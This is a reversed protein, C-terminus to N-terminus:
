FRIQLSRAPVLPTKSVKITDAARQSSPSADEYYSSKPDRFKPKLKPGRKRGVGPKRPSSDNLAGDNAQPNYEDEVTERPLPIRFDTGFAKDAMRFLNYDVEKTKRKPRRRRVAPVDSDDVEPEMQPPPSSSLAIPSDSFIVARKVPPIPSAPATLNAPADEHVMTETSDVSVRHPRRHAFPLIENCDTDDGEEWDCLPTVSLPLKEKQKATLPEAQKQESFGDAPAAGAVSREKGSSRNALPSRPSNACLTHTTQTAFGNAVHRLATTPPTPLSRLKDIRRRSRKTVRCSELANIGSRLAKIRESQVKVFAEMETQLEEVSSRLQNIAAVDHDGDDSDTDSSSDRQDRHRPHKRPNPTPYTPKYETGNM